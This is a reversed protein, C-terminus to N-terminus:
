QRSVREIEQKVLREVLPPLNQDLWEKLMPKLLERVMGEITNGPAEAVQTRSSLAGFSASLAGRATDSMLSDSMAAEKPEDDVFVVDDPEETVPVSTEPEPEPDATAVPEPEPEPEPEAVEEAVPEEEVVELAPTEDDPAEETLELVDDDEAVPEQAPAAQEPAAAEAGEESDESIIRRISALIEEMTPEQQTNQESM